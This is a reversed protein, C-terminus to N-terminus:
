SDDDQGVRPKGGFRLLSGFVDSAASTKVRPIEEAVWNAAQREKWWIDRGRRARVLRSNLSDKDDEAIDDRINKLAAIVSNLVRLVNEPNLLATTALAGPEGLHVVPGSVEAYARGAMKRAERWGPQNVTANILAAGMLQPVIHTSTMLGDIELLEAFLPSAGILRTLDAALKIARSDTQPPAAIAMLGNRFLDARAADVGFTDTHLYQPNLVPTLGVYSCGEPLVELAWGAIVEKVPATDMLVAGQKLVPAIHEMVNKIQDVPICLLVLDANTVASKLNGAGKDIAGSKQAQRVVKRDLDYGLRKVVKTHEALALGISAGIQGLGIITINVNMNGGYSSM